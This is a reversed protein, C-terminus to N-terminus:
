EPCSLYYHLITTLQPTETQLARWKVVSSVVSKVARVIYVKMLIIIIIFIIVIDSTNLRALIPRHALVRSLCKSPISYHIIGWIGRVRIVTMYISWNMWTTIRLTLPSVTTHPLISYCSATSINCTNLYVVISVERTSSQSVCLSLSISFSHSYSSFM